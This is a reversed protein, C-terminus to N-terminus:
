NGFRHIQSLFQMTADFITQLIRLYICCWYPTKTQGKIAICLESFQTAVDVIILNWETQNCIDIKIALITSIKFIM